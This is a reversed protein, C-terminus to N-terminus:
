EKNVTKDETPLPTDDDDLDELDRGIDDDDSGEEVKDEDERQSKEYEDVAEVLEQLIKEWDGDTEYDYKDTETAAYDILRITEIYIDKDDCTFHDKFVKTITHLPNPM